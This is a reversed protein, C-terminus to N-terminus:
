KLNNAHFCLDDIRGWLNLKEAFMLNDFVAGNRKRLFVCSEPQGLARLNIESKAFVPIVAAVAKIVEHKECDIGVFFPFLRRVFGGVLGSIRLVLLWRPLRRDCKDSYETEPRGAPHMRSSVKCNARANM